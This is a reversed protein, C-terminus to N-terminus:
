YGSLQWEGVPWSRACPRCCVTDSKVFSQHLLELLEASTYTHGTEKVHPNKIDLNYGNGELTAIPM